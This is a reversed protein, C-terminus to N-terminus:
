LYPTVAVRTNEKIILLLLKPQADSVSFSATKNRCKQKNTLNAPNPILLLTTKSKSLKKTKTDSM